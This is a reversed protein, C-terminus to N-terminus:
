APSSPDPPSPAPPSPAPPSPAPPPTSSSPATASNALSILLDSSSVGAQGAPAAPVRNGGAPPAAGPGGPRWVRAQPGAGAPQGAAAPVGRGIRTGPAGVSSPMGSNM